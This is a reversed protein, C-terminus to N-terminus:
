PKMIDVFTNAGSVGSGYVATMENMQGTAGPHSNYNDIIQNAAGLADAITQGSALTNFFANIAGSATAADVEGGSYILVKAGAQTFGPPWSTGSECGMIVVLRSMGQGATFDGVINPMIVSTLFYVDAKYTFLGVDYTPTGAPCNSPFICNLGTYAAIGPQNSIIGAHGQYVYVSFSGANQCTQRMDLLRANQLPQRYNVKLQGAANKLNPTYGAQGVEQVILDVTHNHFNTWTLWHM